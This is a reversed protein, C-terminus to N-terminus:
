NEYFLPLGIATSINDLPVSAGAGITLGATDTYDYNRSNIAFNHTNIVCTQSNDNWKAFAQHM